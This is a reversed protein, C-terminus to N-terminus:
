TKLSINNLSAYAFISDKNNWRFSFSMRKSAKKYSPLFLIEDNCFTSYNEDIIKKM